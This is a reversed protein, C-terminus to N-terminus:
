EILHHQIAYRTLDSISDMNLKKFIHDRHTYITAESLSFKAAVERVSDGSALACCVQLERETLREHPLQEAPRGIHSALKESLMESVYKGGGAVKRIAKVLETGATEKTVYGVAGAKFANIAYREEPHMTLFLVPTRSNRKKLEALVDFGNKGPISIDLILIDPSLREVADIADQGTSAEGVVEFDPEDGLMTKLGERILVHDDAILIRKM